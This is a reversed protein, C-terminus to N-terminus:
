ASRNRRRRLLGFGVLAAGLISLSAPEPAGPPNIITGADTSIDEFSGRDFNNNAISTGALTDEVMNNLNCDFFLTNSPTYFDVGTSSGCLAGGTTHAQITTNAIENGTTPNYQNYSNVGDGDNILWNGNALITFGDSTSLTGGGLTHLTVPGGINTGMGDTEQVVEPGGPYGTMVFLHGHGDSSLDVVGTGPVPNAFHTIDAGGLGNNFPAVRIFDTASFGNSLETYYVLNSGLFLQVGRGNATGIKAGDPIFSGLVTHTDLDLAEIVGNGFAAQNGLGIRDAKAAGGSGILAMASVVTLAFGGASARRVHNM